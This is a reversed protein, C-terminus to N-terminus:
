AVLASGAFLAGLSAILGLAGTTARIVVSRTTGHAAALAGSLGVLLLKVFLTVQYDTDRDGLDVEMLNWLGTVLALAFCGWAFRGFRQAAQRPAEPGFRRLVPVLAGMLLQGGVWGCVALVHLFVRFTDVDIMQDAKWLM